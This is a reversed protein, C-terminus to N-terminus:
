GRIAEGKVLVEPDKINPCVILRFLDDDDGYIAWVQIWWSETSLRKTGDGFREVIDRVQVDQVVQVGLETSMVASSTPLFSHDENWEALLELHNNYIEM